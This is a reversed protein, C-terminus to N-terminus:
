NHHFCTKLLLRNILMSHMNLLLFSSVPVSKLPPLSNFEPCVSILHGGVLSCGGM